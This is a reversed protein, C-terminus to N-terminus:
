RTGRIVAIAADALRAYDDRLRPGLRPWVSESERYYAADCIARAVRVRLSEVADPAAEIGAVRAAFEDDTAATRDTIVAGSGQM